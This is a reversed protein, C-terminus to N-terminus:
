DKVEDEASLVAGTQADVFVHLRSPIAGRYGTVVSVYALKPTGELAQVVLRTSEVGDATALQSRAVQAARAESIAPATSVDIAKKQAVASSVVQGDARTVVVFDGGVVPLGKYSREYPVYQLGERTSIVAQQHFADASSAHLRAPRAAVFDRASQAARAPPSASRAKVKSAAQAGTASIGVLAVTAAALSVRGLM